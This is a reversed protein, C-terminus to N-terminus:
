PLLASLTFNASTNSNVGVSINLLNISLGATLRFEGALELRGDNDEDQYSFAVLEYDGAELFAFQYDGSGSLRTSSVANLFLNNEDGEAETDTYTGAAYAYIVVEGEEGTANTVTGSLTGVEDKEVYRLSSELRSEGAFAYSGGSRLLAKRLDFDIVAETTTGQEIDVSTNEVRLAGDGAVTLATKAGDMTRVYAGPSNGAADTADDLVIELTNYTKAELDTTFLMETVGNQLASLEVTTKQFGSIPEGDLRVEAITVFVASVNPDDIPADTIELSFTGQDTSINNGDDDGCGVFLALVFFAALLRTPFLISKM